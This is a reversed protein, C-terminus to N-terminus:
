PLSSAIGAAKTAVGTVETVVTAAEAASLGGAQGAIKSAITDLSANAATVQANIDDLIALTKEQNRIIRALFLKTTYDITTTLKTTFPWM